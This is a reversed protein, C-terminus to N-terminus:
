GLRAIRRQKQAASRMARELIRHGEAGPHNVGQGVPLVVSRGRRSRSAPWALRTADRPEIRHPRQGRELIPAAPHDNSLTVTIADRSRVTRVHFSDKYPKSGASDKRARVGSKLEAVTLEIATRKAEAGLGRVYRTAVRDAAQELERLGASYNMTVEVSM